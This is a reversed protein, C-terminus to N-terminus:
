RDGFKIAGNVREVDKISIDFTIPLSILHKEMEAAVPTDAELRDVVKSIQVYQRYLAEVKFFYLKDLVKEVNKAYYFYNSPSSDGNYKNYLLDKDKYLNYTNRRASLVEEIDRLQCLLYYANMVSMVSNNGYAMRSHMPVDYWGGHYALDKMHNYLNEDDTLIGGGEGCSILKPLGFSISGIKGFTGAHKGKYWQGMANCSDEFFIVGHDDCMNKIDVLDPGVYGAKNLFVVMRYKGTKIKDYVINPDICLTDRSIDIPHPIAKLEEACDIWAPHGFDPGLINDGEKIGFAKMAILMSSTGSNVALAYKVNCYKALEEEFKERVGFNYLPIEKMFIALEDIWEQKVMTDLFKINWDKLYDKWVDREEIWTDREEIM